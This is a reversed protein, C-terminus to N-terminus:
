WERMGMGPLVGSHRKATRIQNDPNVENRELFMKVVGVHGNYAACWLPTRSDSDATVPSVEDRELLM